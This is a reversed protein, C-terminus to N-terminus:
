LQKLERIWKELKVPQHGAMAVLVADPNLKL